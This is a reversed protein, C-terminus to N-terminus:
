YLVFPDIQLVQHYNCRESKNISYKYKNINQDKNYHMNKLHQFFTASRYQFIIM